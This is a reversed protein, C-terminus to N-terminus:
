LMGSQHRTENGNASVQSIIVSTVLSAILTKIGM